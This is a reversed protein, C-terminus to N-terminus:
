YKLYIISFTEIIIAEQPPPPLIIDKINSTYYFLPGKEKKEIYKKV